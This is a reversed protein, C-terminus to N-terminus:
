VIAAVSLFWLGSCVISGLTAAMHYAQAWSYSDCGPIFFRFVRAFLQLRPYFGCVRAFLQLWPYFGWLSSCFISSRFLFRCGHIFIVAKLVWPYFECLQAWPIFMVALFLFRSVQAFLQLRPYFGCVRDFLQNRLHFDCGHIFFVDFSTCVISGM